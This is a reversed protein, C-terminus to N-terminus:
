CYRYPKAPVRDETVGCERPKYRSSASLLSPVHRTHVSSGSGDIRQADGRQYQGAAAKASGGCGRGDGAQAFRALGTIMCPAGDVAALTPELLDAGGIRRRPDAHAFRSHLGAPYPRSCVPHRAAHDPGKKKLPEVREPNLRRQSISIEALFLM